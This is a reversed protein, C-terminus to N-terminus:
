LRKGRLVILGVVSGGTSAWKQRSGQVESAYRGRPNGRQARDSEPWEVAGHQVESATRNAQTGVQGQSGAGRSMVSQGSLVLDWERGTAADRDGAEVGLLPPEARGSLRLGMRASWDARGCGSFAM